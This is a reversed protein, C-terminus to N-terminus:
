RAFRAYQALHQAARARVSGERGWTTLPEPASVLCSSRVGNGFVGFVSVPEQSVAVAGAAGAGFAAGAGAAEAAIGAGALVIGCGCGFGRGAFRRVCDEGRAGDIRMM